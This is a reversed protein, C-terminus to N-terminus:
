NVRHSYLAEVVPSVALSQCVYSQQIEADQLQNHCDQAAQKTDFGAFVCSGSGTMRVRDSYRALQTKLRVIVPVLQCAVPECDNHCDQWAVTQGAEPRSLKATNRPLHVSSFVAATSLSVVPKVVVFWQAPTTVSTLQEGVGEAWANYGHVFVPVDAGLQLGLDALEAQSLGCQWLRNLVLLTTAADSSGGGLGAGVPTYKELSIAVGQKIQCRRQLLQAAQIVIDQEAPIASASHRVIHDHPQFQLWDGLDILQFLTQLEHYGDARRANVHLFLNLKAPAFWRQQWWQQIQSDIIDM